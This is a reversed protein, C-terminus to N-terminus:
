RKVAATYSGGEVNGLPAGIYLSARRWHTKYMDELIGLLSTGRWTGRM